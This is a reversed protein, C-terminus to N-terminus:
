KKALKHGIPNNSFSVNSPKHFFRNFPGKVSIALQTLFHRQAVPLPM